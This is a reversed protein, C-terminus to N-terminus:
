GNELLARRISHTKFRVNAERIIIILYYFGQTKRSDVKCNVEYDIYPPKVTASEVLDVNRLHSVIATTANAPPSIVLSGYKRSVYMSGSECAVPAVIACSPMRILAYPM